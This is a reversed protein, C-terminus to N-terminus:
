HPELEPATGGPVSALTVTQPDNAVDEQSPLATREATPANEATAGSAFNFGDKFYTKALGYCVVGAIASNILGFGLTRGVSFGVFAGLMSKWDWNGINLDPTVADLATDTLHNKAGTYLESARNYIGNLSWEM